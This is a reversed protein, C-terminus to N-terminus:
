KPTLDTADREEHRVVCKSTFKLLSTYSCATKRRKLHRYVKSALFHMQLCNSTAGNLWYYAKDIGQM